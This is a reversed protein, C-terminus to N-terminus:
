LLLLSLFWFLEVYNMLGLMDYWGYVCFVFLFMFICGYGLLCTFYTVIDLYCSWPITCTMYGHLHRAHLLCGSMDPLAGSWVAVNRTRAPETSQRVVQGYMRSVVDPSLLVACLLGRTSECVVEAVERQCNEAHL